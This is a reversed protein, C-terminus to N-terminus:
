KNDPSKYVTFTYTMKILAVLSTLVATVLAVAQSSLNTLDLSYTWSLAESFSYLIFGTLIYSYIRSEKIHTYINM